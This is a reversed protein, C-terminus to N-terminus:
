VGLAPGARWGAGASVRCSGSEALYTYCFDARLLGNGGRSNLCRQPFCLCSILPFKDNIMLDHLMVRAAFGQLPAASAGM